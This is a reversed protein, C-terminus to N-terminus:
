GIMPRRSRLGLAAELTHGTRLVTADEFHRGVIQISTPLGSATFGNCLALSPGGTLNFPRTLSFEIEGLPTHEYGLVQAPVKNTPLVLIDIDRM